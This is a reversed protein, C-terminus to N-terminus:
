RNVLSKGDSIFTIDGIEYTKMIDSGVFTLADIISQHPHGYRNNLGASIVSINPSVAKFFINSLSSKSGHHAVKLVDSKLYTGDRKVLYEEVSSSIDGTLLFSSKGYSLKGVISYDNRDSGRPETDPYLIEISIGEDVIINDGRRLVYKEIEQKSISREVEQFIGTEVVQGNHGYYDVSFNELVNPIGGIHDADPHTAIIMDISRDYFPIVRGLASLISRNPGADILLQNGNPSEIFIADGQGIDLFVVKLVGIDRYLVNYFICGNLLIFFLIIYFYIRDLRM